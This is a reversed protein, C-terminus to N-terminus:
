EQVVIHRYYEDFTLPVISMSFLYRRQLLCEIGFIESKVEMNVIFRLPYRWASANKHNRHDIQFFWIWNIKYWLIRIKENLVSNFIFNSNCFFHKWWALLISTLFYMQHEHTFVAYLLPQSLVNLAVACM